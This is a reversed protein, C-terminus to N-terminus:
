QVCEIGHCIFLWIVLLIVCIIADIALVIRVQRCWNARIIQSGSRKLTRYDKPLPSASGHIGRNDAEFSTLDVKVSKDTSKRREELEVDRRSVHHDRSKKKESPKGLLPANTPYPVEMPGHLPSPTGAPWIIGSESVSEQLTILRVLIPTFKEQLRVPRSGLMIEKPYKKAMKKFEDKVHKLFQLIGQNGLREDAITFYVYGDDMLFAFTRKGETHSYWKHFLPAREVCAAALNEIEQDGNSHTFLVQDGRSVSCYYISGGQSSDM